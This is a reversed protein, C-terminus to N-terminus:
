LRPFLFVICVDRRFRNYLVFMLIGAKTKGNHGPSVAIILSFLLHHNSSYKLFFFSISSFGPTKYVLPHEVNPSTPNSGDGLRQKGLAESVAVVTTAKISVEISDLAIEVAVGQGEEAGLSVVREAFAV